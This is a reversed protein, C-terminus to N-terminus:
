SRRLSAHTHKTHRNSSWKTRLRVSLTRRRQSKVDASDPKAYMSEFIEAQKPWLMRAKEVEDLQAFSAIIETVAKSPSIGFKAAFAAVTEYDNPRFQVTKIVRGEGSASM